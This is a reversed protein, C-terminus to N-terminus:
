VYAVAKHELKNQYLLIGQEQEPNLKLEYLLTCCKTALTNFVTFRVLLPIFSLM